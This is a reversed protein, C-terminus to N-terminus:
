RSRFVERILVIIGPYTRKNEPWEMNRAEKPFYWAIADFNLKQQLCDLYDIWCNDMYPIQSRPFRPTVFCIGLRRGEQRSLNRADDCALDFRAKLNSIDSTQGDKLRPFVQKIECAFKNERVNFFLDCRGTRHEGKKVKKTSYEKLAVGGSMWAAAALISTSARENAWWACDEWSVTKGFLCNLRIWEKLIPRLSRLKGSNVFSRRL